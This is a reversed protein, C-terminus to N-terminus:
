EKSISGPSTCTQYEYTAGHKYIARESYLLEQVSHSNKAPKHVENNYLREQVSHSSKASKHVKESTRYM